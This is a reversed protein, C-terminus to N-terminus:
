AAVRAITERWIATSPQYGKVDWRSRPPPAPKSFDYVPAQRYVERNPYPFKRLIHAQSCYAALAAQKRVLREGALDVIVSSSSPDSWFDGFTQGNATAHYSAFEFRLINSAVTQGLWAATDHDLHGGEYPHTWIADVDRSVDRILEYLRPLAQHAQRFAQGGMWVPFVWAAACQAAAREQERDVSDQTLQVLVVDVLCCLAAAMSIVEDDPHAVLVLHRGAVPVGLRVRELVDAANLPM